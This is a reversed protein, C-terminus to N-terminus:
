IGCVSVQKVPWRASCKGRSIRNEMVIVEIRAYQGQDTVAGKDLPRTRCRNRVPL